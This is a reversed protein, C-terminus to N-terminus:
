RRLWRSWGRLHVGFFMKQCLAMYVKGVLLLIAM